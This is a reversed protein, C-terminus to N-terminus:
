EHINRKDVVMQILKKKRDDDVYESYSPPLLEIAKGNVGLIGIGLKRLETEHKRLITQAYSYPVSIYVLDSIFLGSMAQKLVRSYSSLKAEVVVVEKLRPKVGVVDVRRSSSPNPKVEQSTKFGRTTLYKEIHSYLHSELLKDAM